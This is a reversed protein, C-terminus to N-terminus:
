NKKDTVLLDVGTDISPVWVNVNPFNRELFDGVAFEGAHIAFLSKV